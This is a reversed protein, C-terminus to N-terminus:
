EGDGVAPRLCRLETQQRWERQGVGQGHMVCREVGRRGNARRNRAWLGAMALRGGMGGISRVVETM